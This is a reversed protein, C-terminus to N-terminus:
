AVLLWGPSAALLLSRVLEPLEQLTMLLALQRADQRDAVLYGLVQGERDTAVVREGIQQARALLVGGASHMVWTLDGEEPRLWALPFGGADSVRLRGARRSIRSMMQSGNPGADAGELFRSAPAAGSSTFVSVVGDAARVVRGSVATPGPTAAAVHIAGAELWVRGQHAPSRFRGDTGNASEENSWVVAHVVHGHADRWEAASVAGPPVV